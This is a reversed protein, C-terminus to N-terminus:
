LQEVQISEDPNVEKVALTESETISAFEPLEPLKKLSAKAKTTDVSTRVFGNTKAYDEFAKKDTVEISKTSRRTFLVGEFEQSKVGNQALDQCVQAKLTSIYDSVVKLDGKIRKETELANLLLLKPDQTM